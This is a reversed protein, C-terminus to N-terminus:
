IEAKTIFRFPKKKPKTVTLSVIGLDKRRMSASRGMLIKISM